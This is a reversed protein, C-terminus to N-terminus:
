FALQRQLKDPTHLETLPIHRLAGGVLAADAQHELIRQQKRVHAHSFIQQKRHRQAQGLGLSLRPHMLGQLLGVQHAHPRAVRRRQRPALPGSHREHPGQQGFRFGQQQVLGKRLEIRGQAGLQSRPHKGM